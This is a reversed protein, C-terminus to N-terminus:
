GPAPAKDLYRGPERMFARECQESCFSLTRAGVRLERVADTPAVVLGCVPDREAGAGLPRADRQLALFDEVFRLLREGLWADVAAPDAADLPVDVHDGHEVAADRPRVEVSYYVSAVRRERDHVIGVTLTALTPAHPTPAFVCQLQRGSRSDLRSMSGGPIRSALLQLRPTILREILVDAFAFFRSGAAEEAALTEDAVARVTARRAEAQAFVRDLGARFDFADPM